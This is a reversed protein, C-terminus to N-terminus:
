TAVVKGLPPATTRARLSSDTLPRCLLCVNPEGLRPEDDGQGQTGPLSLASRRLLPSALLMSPRGEQRLYYFYYVLAGQPSRNPRDPGEPTCGAATPTPFVVQM